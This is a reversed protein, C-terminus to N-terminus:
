SELGSLARELQVMDDPLPAQVTVPEGKVPHEFELTAAHLAQRPFDALIQNLAQDGGPPIRRRGGYLADGVLPHRLHAFHVRIQHTRGTELQVDVATNHAFRTSIRYHTTSERGDSRVSMRLRDKPHRGIPANITGGGTLCGHCVARYTRSIRREALARVLETHSELTRAVMLLGSTDKDIRHVLGARQLVSLEPYRYLLGNVLTGDPNGAGPHVVLGAPKDIVIVADDEYVVDFAIVEPADREVATLVVDIQVHEGGEVRVRPKCTRGDVLVDGAKLWATLRSRSHEPFLEALAQDLRLGTLRDPITTSLEIKPM